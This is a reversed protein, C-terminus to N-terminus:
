RCLISSIRVHVSFVPYHPISHSGHESIGFTCVHLTEPWIVLLLEPLRNRVFFVEDMGSNEQSPDIAELPVSFALISFMNKRLYM